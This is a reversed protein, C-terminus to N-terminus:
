KGNGVNPISTGYFKGIHLDYINFFYPIRDLKEFNRFPHFYKM